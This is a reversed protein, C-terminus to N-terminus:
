EGRLAQMPDIRSARHAPVFGAGLAVLTLLVAASALVAPDHGDLRYLMAQAARGLAVAAALGIAGGGIAMVGVQRLVMGRVQGPAAGLAMRLGIERTRQSVTYALVGYLGVAALLTALGAFTTVLMSIVRDAFVSERFQDEFTKLGDIPLNPDLRAVARRVTAMVQVPETATRVYFNLGSMRTSQRYPWFVLPVMDERVSSYKMDRVLGVIEVDLQGGGGGASGASRMGIRRGVVNRGLNFMKAFSENVVAVKHAGRVDADSLERGALLPVGMTRFYGPGIENSRVDTETDPTVPFGEVLLGDGWSDGNLLATRSATVSRVGPLASLEQELSAFFAQSRELSYGNLNPAVHFTILRDIDLGLDVRSINALSRAFLGASVLLMMSLAIQVVALTTRFRSASRAGAPQGSFGKLTSLLDPRTSHLAPFLGFLLGTGLTLTATFLLAPAELRLDLAAGVEAPLLVTMLRLTWAAVLLGAAGGLAALLCSETLLQVILHRRSAGISLRVAMESARGAARALLLNAINACAILLVFGTVALLLTLSASAERQVLSQGRGGPVIGISKAKFKALTEASMDHQLPAEVDALIPRYFGNAASRAADISVGPALRAFLYAWYNRRNDFGKFGPTVLGRMTIPVFVAPQSSLSTGAFGRPAVGVITM